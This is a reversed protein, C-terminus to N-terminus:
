SNITLSAFLKKMFEIKDLSYLKKYNKYFKNVEKKREPLINIISAKSTISYFNDAYKLVIFEKNNYSYYVTSGIQQKKLKIHKIYLSFEDFNGISEFYGNRYFSLNSAKAPLRVFHHDLISFSEVLTKELIIFYPNTPDFNELLLNDEYLDYKLDCKYFEQNKYNVKGQKAEYSTFYRFDTNSKTRYIDEFLKGTNLDNTFSGVREDFKNYYSSLNSQAIAGQFSLILVSFQIFKM